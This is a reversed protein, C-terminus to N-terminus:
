RRARYNHLNYLEGLDLLSALLSKLTAAHRLESSVAEGLIIDIFLNYPLNSGNFSVQYFLNILKGLLILYLKNTADYFCM